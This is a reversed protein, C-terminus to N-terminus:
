RLGITERFAVYECSEEIWEKFKDINPLHGEIQSPMLTDAQEKEKIARTDKDLLGVTQFANHCKYESLWEEFTKPTQPYTLAKTLSISHEPNDLSLYQRM